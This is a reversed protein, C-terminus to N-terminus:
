PAEVAAALRLAAEALHAAALDDIYRGLAERANRQSELVAPFGAAGEFYARRSMGTIRNASLVLLRGREARALASGRELQARAIQQASERRAVALKSLARDRNARAVAIPGRNRNLLPLPISLGLTPLLGGEFGSPDGTEFGAIFSPAPLFARQELSLTREGSALDAEAALVALTVGPAAVITDAPPALSDALAILTRDADLGMVVQLDLLTGVADMSDRQADNARQGGSVTALQVDLESADGADRRIVTMQLMTDAELALRRSIDAHAEAALARTYAVDADFRAGARELAFRYRSANAALRAAGVRAARLWPFELPLEVSLHRQPPSQTYEATVTPNQWARAISLQGRALATDAFAVLVRPGRALAAEIAQQRTVPQQAQAGIVVLGHIATLVRTRLVM